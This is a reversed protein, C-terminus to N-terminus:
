NAIRRHMLDQLAVLGAADGSQVLRVTLRAWSVREGLQCIHGVREALAMDFVAHADGGREVDRMAWDRLGVALGNDHRQVAYCILIMAEQREPELRGMVEMMESVTLDLETMM